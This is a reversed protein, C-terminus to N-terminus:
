KKTLRIHVASNRREAVDPLRGDEKNNRGGTGSTGYDDEMDDQDSNDLTDLLEVTSTTVHMDISDYGIQDQIYLALDVAKNVAKGLGHIVM